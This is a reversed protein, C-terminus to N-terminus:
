FPFWIMDSKQELSELPEWKWMAAFTRVYDTGDSSTVRLGRESQLLCASFLKRATGSLALCTNEEPGKYSGQAQNRCFCLRLSPKGVTSHDTHSSLLPSLLLIGSSSPLYLCAHHVEDGRHSVLVWDGPVMRIFTKPFEDWSDVMPRTLFASEQVGGWSSFWFKGKFLIGPSKNCM